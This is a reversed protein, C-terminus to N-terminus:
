NLHCLSINPLESSGWDDVIQSYHEPRERLLSMIIVSIRLLHQFRVELGRCHIYQSLLLLKSPSPSFFFCFHPFSTQLYRGKQAVNKLAIFSLYTKHNRDEKRARYFWSKIPAMGRHSALSPYASSGKIELQLGAARLRTIGSGGEFPPNFTCLLRNEKASLLQLVKRM